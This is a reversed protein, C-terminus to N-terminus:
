KARGNDRKKQKTPNIDKLKTNIISKLKNGKCKLVMKKNSFSKIVRKVATPFAKIVTYANGLESKREAFGKVVTKAVDKLYEILSSLVNMSIPEDAGAPSRKITNDANGTNNKTM